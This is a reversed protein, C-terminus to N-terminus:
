DEIQRLSTSPFDFYKLATCSRFTGGKVVRLNTSTEDDAKERGVFVHTISTNAQDDGYPNFGQVAWVPKAVGTDPDIHTAPITIKGRLNLDSKLTAVYGDEVYFSPDNEQDYENYAEKTYTFYEEHINDYVSAEKFIAYYTTDM